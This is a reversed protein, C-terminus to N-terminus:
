AGTSFFLYIICVALTLALFLIWMPFDKENGERSGERSFFSLLLHPSSFPKLYFVCHSLGELHWGSADCGCPYRSSPVPLSSFVPPPLFPLLKPFSTPLQLCISLSPLLHKRSHNQGRQFHSFQLLPESLPGAGENEGRKGEVARFGQTLEYQSGGNHSTWSQEM